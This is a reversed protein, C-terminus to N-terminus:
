RRRRRASHRPRKTKKLSGIRFGPPVRQSRLMLRGDDDHSLVTLEELVTGPAALRSALEAQNLLDEIEDRDIIKAKM